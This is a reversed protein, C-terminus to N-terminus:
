QCNSEEILTNILAKLSKLEAELEKIRALNPDETTVEHKRSSKINGSEDLYQMPVTNRISQQSIPTFERKEGRIKSSNHHKPKRKSKLSYRPKSM